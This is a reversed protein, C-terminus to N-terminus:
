EVCASDLHHISNAFTLFSPLQRLVYWKCGSCDCGYTELSECSLYPRRKLQQDCTFSGLCWGSCAGKAVPSTTVPTTAVPTTTKSDSKCPMTCGQFSYKQALAQCGGTGTQKAWFGGPQNRTRTFGCSFAHQIDACRESLMKAPMDLVYGMSNECFFASSACSKCKGLLEDLAAADRDPTTTVLANPKFSLRCTKDSFSLAIERCTADPHNRRYTTYRKPDCLAGSPLGPLPMLACDLAAQRQSCSAAAPDLYLNNLADVCVGANKPCSCRSWM